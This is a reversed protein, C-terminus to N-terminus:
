VRKRPTRPGALRVTTPKGAWGLTYRTAFQLAEDRDAQTGGTITLEIPGSDDDASHDDITLHPYARRVAAAVAQHLWVYRRHPNTAM